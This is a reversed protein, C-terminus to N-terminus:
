VSVYDDGFKEDYFAVWLFSMPTNPAIFITQLSFAMEFCQM